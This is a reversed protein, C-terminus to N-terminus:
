IQGSNIMVIACGQVVEIDNKKLITILEPNETGPNFIVKKPHIDLIYKIYYEQTKVGIYLLLTDVFDIKPFGTLIEVGSVFGKRLGVAVINKERRVLSTIAKNSFRASNPSAGLVLYKKM